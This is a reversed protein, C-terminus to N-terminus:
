WKILEFATKLILYLKEQKSEPIQEILNYALLPYSKSNDNSDEIKEFLDSIPVQLAHAVKEITVITANKEGREVQGVYTHHLGCLEAFEEQSLNRHIRYNRVRNGFKESIESM